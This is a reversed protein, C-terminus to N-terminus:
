VIDRMRFPFDKPLTFKFPETYPMDMSALLMTLDTKLRTISKQTMEMMNKLLDMKRDCVKMADHLGMEVYTDEGLRVVM